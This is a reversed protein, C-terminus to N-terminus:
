KGVTWLCPPWLVSDNAPHEHEINCMTSFQQARPSYLTTPLNTYGVTGLVAWIAQMVERTPLSFFLEPVGM